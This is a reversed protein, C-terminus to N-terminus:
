YTHAHMEPRANIIEIRSPNASYSCTVRFSLSAVSSYLDDCYLHFFRGAACFFFFLKQECQARIWFYSWLLFVCRELITIVPLLLLTTKHVDFHTCAITYALMTNMRKQVMEEAHHARNVRVRKEDDELGNRSMFGGEGNIERARQRGRKRRTDRERDGEEGGGM